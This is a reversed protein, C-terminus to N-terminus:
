VRNAKCLKRSVLIDEFTILLTHLHLLHLEFKFSLATNRVEWVNWMERQDWADLKLYRLLIMFRYFFFLICKKLSSIEARCQESVVSQTADDRLLYCRGCSSHKFSCCNPGLWVARSGLSEGYPKRKEYPKQFWGVAVSLLYRRATELCPM